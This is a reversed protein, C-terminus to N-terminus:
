GNELLAAPTPDQFEQGAWVKGVGQGCGTAGTPEVGLHNWDGSTVVLLHRLFLPSTQNPPLSYPNRLNRM